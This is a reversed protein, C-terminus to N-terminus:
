SSTGRGAVRLMTQLRLANRAAYGREDNDFYCYVTRDQAAWCVFDGAWGSLRENNYSGRYPGGPGHLRVYVLDGTIEKPSLFGDLEYICFAARHRSLLECTEENLWSRDRFEFAYRFEGSLVNLFATLREKNFRWRPPLQFLIPGLKDGLMRIRRLFSSTGQGPDKLKKMHTIFRSAKVSFLFDAPTIDHWLTLTEEAPLHYFSTNIETTRFHGAYYALMREGDLHRPYFPGKWHDYSWGSTGIHIQQTM